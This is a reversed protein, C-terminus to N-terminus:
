PTTPRSLARARGALRVARGGAAGARRRRRRGAADRRRWGAAARGARRPRSARRPAPHARGVDRHRRAPEQLGVRVDAHEGGGLDHARQRAERVRVRASVRYGCRVERSSAYVCRACAYAYMCCISVRGGCM